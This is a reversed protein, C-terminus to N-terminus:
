IGSGLVSFMGSSTALGLDTKVTVHGSHAHKPVIAVITTQSPVMFTAKVGGIKVWKPGGLNVGHITVHTGAAGRMPAFSSIHTTGATVPTGGAHVTFATMTNATGEPTTVAIKGGGAPTGAPVYAIITTGMTDVVTVNGAAHGNFKVIPAVHDVSLYAGKITVRTGVKGVHPGFTSITPANLSRASASGALVCAMAALLAILAGATMQTRM